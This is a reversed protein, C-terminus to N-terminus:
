AEKAIIEMEKIKQLGKDIKKQLDKNLEKETRIEKLGKLGKYIMVIGAIMLAGRLGLEVKNNTFM